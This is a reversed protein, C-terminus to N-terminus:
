SQHVCYQLAFPKCTGFSVDLILENPLWGTLPFDATDPLVHTYQVIVSHSPSPKRTVPQLQRTLVYGRYGAWTGNYFMPQEPAEVYSWTPGAKLVLQAPRQM